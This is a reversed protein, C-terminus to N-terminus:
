IFYIVLLFFAVIFYVLLEKSRLLIRIYGFGIALSFVDLMVAAFVRLTYNISQALSLSEFNVLFLILTLIICPILLRGIPSSKM